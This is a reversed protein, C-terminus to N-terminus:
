NIIEEATKRALGELSFVLSGYVKEFSFELDFLKRANDGYISLVQREADMKNLVALLSSVDSSSYVFGIEYDLILKGAVGSLSTLLPRGAAMSDFFKNPLSLLFDPSAVYPAWMVTSRRRLMNAQSPTVWGLFTVNPFTKFRQRLGNIIPGDGAIVFHYKPDQAAHFMPEFDLARTLSGIYSIRFTQDETIGRENLWDSANDIESPMFSRDEQTLYAVQDFKHLSRKTRSICMELFSHSISSIASVNRFTQLMMLKYPLLAVKGLPRFYIPFLRLIIEPWDDKVDLMTPVKMKSAWRVFLWSSEIPPFGVFLVDPPKQNRLMRRLNFALEVHDLIRAFSITATYGRSPVLKIELNENSEIESFDRQKKNIHDFQSSWLVVKHGKMLLSKTLNMARMSRFDTSDGPLPEGTQFIWVKM